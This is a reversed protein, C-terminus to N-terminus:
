DHAVERRARRPTQAHSLNRYAECTDLLSEHDGLGVIRGADMVVIMDAHVITSLRHAIVFTTCRQTIQELADIIRSESEADIESTAEDLILISPERLVARAIAIRQRQGGSLRAGDEGVQTDYGDPLATIFEHAHARQAADIIRELPVDALGYVINSAITGEFLVTEQTIVAMQRRISALSYDRLDHGDILVRGADPTFLRPLLGILTTKGAGNTGVIACLSGYPVSLSVDELVPEDRNPYTFRISEFVVSEAHRPLEPRTVDGAFDEVPLQLMEDIREAAAEAGQLANNLDTLPRMAGAAAGLLGVVMVMEAPQAGGRVYVYWASGLMLALLLWVAMLEAMPSSFARVLQLRLQERYLQENVQRFHEREQTEAHHVKVVKLARLVRQISAVMPVAMQLTTRSLTRVRRGVRHIMLALLPLPVLFMLALRWDLAIAWILLVAGQLVQRVAKDLVRSLGERVSMVDRLVRSLRDASGSSLATNMDLQIFRDFIWERIDRTVRMLILGSLYAHCFRGIAGFMAIVAIMAILFAFGGFRGEPVYNLLDTRDGIWSQLGPSALKAGLLSHATANESFVQHFLWLLTGIGGAACATELLAGAIAGIVEKRYTLALRGFQLLKGTILM